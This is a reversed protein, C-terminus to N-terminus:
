LSKIYKRQAKNYFLTYRCVYLGVHQNKKWTIDNNYYYYQCFIIVNSILNFPKTVGYIM